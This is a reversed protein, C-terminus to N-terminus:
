AGFLEKQGRVVTEDTYDILEGSRELPGRLVLWSAARAPVEPPELRSQQKLDLFRQQDAKTMGESSRIEQQMKTDIVGPRLSFVGVEPAEVAVVKGLHLLGAKSACYASWGAMAKIAAGSSINVIRGRRNRLEPLAARMLLAPATLNIEIAKIWIAPDSDSLADIPDITGANNVLGDLRGLTKITERVLSELQGLEALDAPRAQAYKLEKTLRLLAAEDRGTLMTQCGLADLQHAIAKGLGGTAGTILVTKREGGSM